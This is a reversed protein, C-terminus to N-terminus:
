VVTAYHCSPSCGEKQPWRRSSMSRLREKRPSGQSEARLIRLLSQREELLAAHEHGLALRADGHRVSRQRSCVHAEGRSGADRGGVCLGKPSGGGAWWGVGRGWRACAARTRRASWGTIHHVPTATVPASMGTVDLSESDRGAFRPRDGARLLQPLVRIARACTLSRRALVRRSSVSPPAMPSAALPDQSLSSSSLASSSVWAPLLNLLSRSSSMPSALASTM